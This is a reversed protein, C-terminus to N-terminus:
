RLVPTTPPLSLLLVKTYHKLHRNNLHLSLDRTACCDRTPLSSAEENSRTHPPCGEFRSQRFRRPSGTHCASTLPGQGWHGPLQKNQGPCQKHCFHTPYRQHLPVLHQSPSFVVAAAISPVLQLPNCLTRQPLTTSQKTHESKNGCIWPQCCEECALCLHYQWRSTAGNRLKTVRSVTYCVVMSNVLLVM